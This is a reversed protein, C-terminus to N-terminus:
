RVQGDAQRLDVAPEADYLRIQLAVELPNGLGALSLDIEKEERLKREGSISKEMEGAANRDVEFVGVDDLPKSFCRVANGDDDTQDLLSPLANEVVASNQDVAALDAVHV